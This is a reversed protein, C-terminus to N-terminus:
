RFDLQSSTHPRKPLGVKGLVVRHEPGAHWSVALGLSVGLSMSLTSSM